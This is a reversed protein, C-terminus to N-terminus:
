LKLSVLHKIIHDRIMPVDELRWYVGPNIEMYPHLGLAKLATSTVPLQLRAALEMTSVVHQEEIRSM